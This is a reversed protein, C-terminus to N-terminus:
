KSRLPVVNGEFQQVPKQEADLHVIFKISHLPIFGKDHAIGVYAHLRQLWEIWPIAGQMDIYQGEPGHLVVRFKYPQFAQPAPAPLPFASWSLLYNLREQAEQETRERELRDRYSAQSEHSEAGQSLRQAAQGGQVRGHGDEHSEEKRGEDDAEKSADFMETNFPDYQIVLAGLVLTAM